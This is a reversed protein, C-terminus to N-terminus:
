RPVFRFDDYHAGLKPGDIPADLGVYINTSSCEATGEAVSPLVMDKDGVRASGTGGLFDFTLVVHIWTSSPVAPTTDSDDDSYLKVGNVLQLAIARGGNDSVELLTTPNSVSSTSLRLEVEIKGACAAVSRKIRARAHDSASSSVSAALASRGDVDPSFAINGTGATEELSWGKLDAGDFSDCLEPPACRASDHGDTATADLISSDPAEHDLAAGADPNGGASASFSDCAFLGGLLAAM